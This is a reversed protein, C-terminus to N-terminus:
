LTASTGHVAALAKRVRDQYPRRQWEASPILHPRPSMKYTGFEVFVAYEALGPDNGVEASFPGTQTVHYSRRLNGTIIPAAHPGGGKVSGEIAIATDTVAKAVGAMQAANMKPLRNFLVTATIRAGPV